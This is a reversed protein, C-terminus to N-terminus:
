MCKIDPSHRGARTKYRRHRVQSFRHAPAAAVTEDPLRLHDFHCDANVIVHSARNVPQIHPAETSVHTAM